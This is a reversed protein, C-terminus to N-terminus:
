HILCPINQPPTKQNKTPRRGASRRRDGIGRVVLGVTDTTARAMSVGQPPLVTGVGKGIPLGLLVRDILDAHAAVIAALGANRHLFRMRALNQAVLMPAPCRGTGITVIGMELILQGPFAYGGVLKKQHVASDGQHLLILRCGALGRDGIGVGCDVVVIPGSGVAGVRRGDAPFLLIFGDGFPSEDEDM